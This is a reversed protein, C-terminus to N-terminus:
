RNGRGVVLRPLEDLHQDDVSIAWAGYGGQDFAVVRYYLVGSPGLREWVQRPVTWSDGIGFVGEADGGFYYNDASRDEINEMLSRTTAMEVMWFPLGVPDVAFRPPAGSAPWSRPGIIRARLTKESRTCTEQPPPAEAKGERPYTSGSM